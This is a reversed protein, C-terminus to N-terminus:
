ELLHDFVGQVAKIHVHKFQLVPILKLSLVALLQKNSSVALDPTM